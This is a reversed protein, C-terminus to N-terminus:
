TVTKNLVQLSLRSFEKSLELHWPYLIVTQFLFASIGILSSVRPLWISEFSKKPKDHALLHEEDM